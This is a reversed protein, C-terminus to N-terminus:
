HRWKFSHGDEMQPELFGRFEKGDSTWRAGYGNSCRVEVVKVEHPLLHINLWSLDSLIRDMIRQAHKNKAMESGSCIGWFASTIDRHCHKSLARAGVTLSSKPHHHRNFSEYLLCTNPPFADISGATHRVGLLDLLMRTSLYEVVAQIKSKRDLRDLTEWSQNLNQLLLQVSDKAREGDQSSILRSEELLNVDKHLTSPHNGIRMWYVLGKAIQRYLPYRPYGLKFDENSDIGDQSSDEGKLLSDCDEISLAGSLSRRERKETLIEKLIAEFEQYPHKISAAM